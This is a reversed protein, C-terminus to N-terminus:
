VEDCYRFGFRYEFSLLSELSEGLFASWYRKFDDGIFGEARCEDISEYYHGDGIVMVITERSDPNVGRIFDMGVFNKREDRYGFDICEYYFYMRSISSSKNANMNKSLKMMDQQCENENSYLYAGIPGGSGSNLTSDVVIQFGVYDGSASFSIFFWIYFIVRNM